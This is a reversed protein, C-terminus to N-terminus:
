GGASARWAQALDRVAHGMLETARPQGGAIRGAMALAVLGHLTAWLLDVDDDLDPVDGVLPRVADRLAVFAARAEAPTETTGFPVGGLGHMVQYLEPREWAFAWYAAAARALSEEPTTAGGGAARLRETLEAFGECLLALLLDDKSVFYQYIMPPSYEIRAAVKRITVAQWGERAAIERAAALIDQRLAQRERERRRKIGGPVQVQMQTVYGGREKRVVYM